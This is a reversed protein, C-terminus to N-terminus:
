LHANPAQEAPDAESRTQPTRSLPLVAATSPASSAGSGGWFGRQLIREVSPSSPVSFVQSSLLRNKM